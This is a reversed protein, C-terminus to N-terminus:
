AMAPIPSFKYGAGYITQLHLPNAPDSELKQRLKLVQNDVTRTTPYANYGWVQNLLEERTLVREANQTFFRLLKYEHATLTVANGGKRAIMRLFDVECDGFQYTPTMEDKRRRRIAGQVRALLERPSFPKTIYDEAGLELLLVKDIVESLASLILVPTDASMAKIQKCVERGSLEPLMLDLVVAIPSVAQFAHVGARGDSAIEVRYGQDSFIKHLIKQIRVDDEVILITGLAENMATSELAPEPAGHEIEM